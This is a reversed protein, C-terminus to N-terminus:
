LGLDAASVVGPADGFRLPVALPQGAIVGSGELQNLRVIEAIVDRPDASPDLETAVSWLSEGPQVVVYGFDAAGAENSAVAGPAGITAIFAFAAATLVTLLAGVVVRGRRTLRLKPQAAGTGSRLRPQAADASPRLRPQAAGPSRRLEARALPFATVNDPFAIEVPALVAQASM